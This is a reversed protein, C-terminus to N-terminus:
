LHVLSCAKLPCVCVCVCLEMIVCTKLLTHVWSGPPSVANFGSLQSGMNIVLVLLIPQRYCAKSFFQQISVSTQTSTTEEKM